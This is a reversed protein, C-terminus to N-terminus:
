KQKSLSMEFTPFWTVGGDRSFEGIEHWKGDETQKLTYKTKGYSADMGWSYSGNENFILDSDIFNGGQYARLVFKSNIQDYTFVGFARFVVKGEESNLPIDYGTGEMTIITGDLMSVIHEQQTLLTKKQDRGMYWAEGKWDGVMWSFKKMQEIVKDPSPQALVITASFTGSLLLLLAIIKTKM